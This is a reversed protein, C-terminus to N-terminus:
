PFGPLGPMASGLGGVTPAAGFGAMGGNAPAQQQVPAAQVPAAQVPAAATAGPLTAGAPQAQQLYEAMAKEWSEKSAYTVLDDRMKTPDKTDPRANPRFEFLVLRNNIQSNPATPDFDLKNVAEETLQLVHALTTKTFGNDSSYSCWIRYGMGPKLGGSGMGMYQPHPVVNLFYGKPTTEGKEIKQDDAKTVLGVHFGKPFPPLQAGAFPTNTMDYQVRM